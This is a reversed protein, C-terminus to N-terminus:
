ARFLPHMHSPWRYAMYRQVAPVPARANRLYGNLWIRTCEDTTETTNFEVRHKWQFHMSQMWVFDFM